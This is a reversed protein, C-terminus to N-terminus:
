RAVSRVFAAADDALEAMADATLPLPTTLVAEAEDVLYDCQDRAARLRTLMVRAALEVEPRRGVAGSALAVLQTVMDRLRQASALAETSGDDIAARAATMCQAATTAVAHELASVTMRPVHEHTTM